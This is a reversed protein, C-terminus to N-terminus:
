MFQRYKQSIGSSKRRDEFYVEIGCSKLERSIRSLVASDRSLRAVDNVILLDFMGHKADDIMQRLETREESIGSGIEAYIATLILNPHKKILEECRSIQSELVDPRQDDLTAARAYIAARIPKEREDLLTRRRKRFRRHAAPRDRVRREGLTIMLDLLPESDSLVSWQTDDNNANNETM